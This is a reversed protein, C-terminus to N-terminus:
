GRADNAGHASGYCDCAANDLAENPICCPILGALYHSVQRTQREKSEGGCLSHLVVPM